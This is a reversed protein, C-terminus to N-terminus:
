WVEAYFTAGGVNISVFQLRTVNKGSVDMDRSSMGSSLEIGVEDRNDALQVNIMDVAPTKNVIRIHEAPFGWSFAQWATTTVAELKRPRPTLHLGM